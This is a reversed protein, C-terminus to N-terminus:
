KKGEKGGCGAVKEVANLACIIDGQKQERCLRGHVDVINLLYQNCSYRKLAKEKKTGM